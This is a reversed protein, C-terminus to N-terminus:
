LRDESLVQVYIISLAPEGERTREAFLRTHATRLPIYVLSDQNGFGTGGLEEMVGIVQFPIGNIKIRDGTPDLTDPFLQETVQSGLVVVRASSRDHHEQLFTGLSVQANRVEAYAPTTAVIQLNHGEDGRAVQAFGNLVPTVRVVSPASGPDALARADGLTLPTPSAAGSFAGFTSRSGGGELSGPLVFLLNSGLSQIQETVLRQVGQGVSLLAIVAGVGIIIGLLTLSSRLKNAALSSRAERFSELLNM